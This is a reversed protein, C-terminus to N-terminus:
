SLLITPSPELGEELEHFSSPGAGAVLEEEITITYEIAYDCSPTQVLPDLIMNFAKDLLNISFDHITHVTHM